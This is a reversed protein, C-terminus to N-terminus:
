IGGFRKSTFFHVQYEMMAEKAKRMDSRYSIEVANLIM